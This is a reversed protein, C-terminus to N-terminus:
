QLTIRPMEPSPTNAVLHAMVAALDTLLLYIQGTKYCM